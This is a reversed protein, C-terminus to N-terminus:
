VEEVRKCQYTSEIAGSVVGQLDPIATKVDVLLDYLDEVEDGLTPIYENSDTKIPTGQIHRSFYQLDPLCQAAIQSVVESAVSQYMYSDTEVPLIKQLRRPEGYQIKPKLHAIAIVQHGFTQALHLALISDKGGSILGM